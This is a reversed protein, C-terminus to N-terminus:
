IGVGINRRRQVGPVPNLTLDTAGTFSHDALHYVGIQLPSVTSSALYALKVYHLVGGPEDWQQFGGTSIVGNQTHATALGPVYVRGRGAKGAVGTRIRIICAMYPVQQDGHDNIPTISVAKNYPAVNLDDLNRVGINIWKGRNDVASRLNGIWNAEIDSAVAALSLVGDPNSFHLVNQMQQGMWLFTTTVRVKM